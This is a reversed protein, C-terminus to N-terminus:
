AVLRLGRAEPHVVVDSVFFHVGASGLINAVVEGFTAVGGAVRFQLHLSTNRLKFGLLQGDLCFNVPLHTNEEANRNM